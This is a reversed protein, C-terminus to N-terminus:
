DQRCYPLKGKNVKLQNYNLIGYASKGTTINAIM